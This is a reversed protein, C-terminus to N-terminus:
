VNDTEFEFKSFFDNVIEEKEATMENTDYFIKMVVDKNFSSAMDAYSRRGFRRYLFEEITM